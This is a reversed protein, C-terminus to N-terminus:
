RTFSRDDLRVDTKIRDRPGVNAAERLGRNALAKAAEVYVPDNLLTLAQLPTNTRSRQVTCALRATADFNVLSPYPAGRKIVVYVGRRHKEGGASVKYNYKVGGVKNWVNPPQFPRIPKGFQRTNM